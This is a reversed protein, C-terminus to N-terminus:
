KNEETLIITGELYPMIPTTDYEGGCIWLDRAENNFILKPAREAQFEVVKGDPLHVRVTYKQKTGELVRLAKNVQTQSIQEDSM